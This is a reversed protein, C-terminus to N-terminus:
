TEGNLDNQCTHIACGWNPKKAECSNTADVKQTNAGQRGKRALHSSRTEAGYLSAQSLQHKLKAPRQLSPGKPFLHGEEALGVFPQEKQEAAAQLLVRDAMMNIRCCHLIGVVQTAIQSSTQNTQCISSPGWDWPLKGVETSLWCSFCFMNKLLAGLSVTAPTDLVIQYLPQSFIVCFRIHAM